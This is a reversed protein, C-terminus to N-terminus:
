KKSLSEFNLGKHKSLEKLSDVFPLKLITKKFREVVEHSYKPKGPVPRGEFLKELTLHAASQIYALM